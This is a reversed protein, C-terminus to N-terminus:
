LDPSRPAAVDTARSPLRVIFAAGGDPNTGVHISGHHAAVIEAVIALGLGSGGTSRGRDQQLRVFREFVRQREAAPIGPGDDSVELVADEDDHAVRIHVISTAHRAANDILNRVMRSLQNADGRIQVPELVCSLETDTEARKRHVESGVVDDLDVDTVRIPLGREDARALLLLDDILHHMRYTEPLLTQEILEGDLMHPQARGLELAATLAALPSRLEHSADGVFQRQANHGAEIRELMENMTHALAAIEDRQTPVPVRESLDASSIAAVRTRIKEVSQLSRGILTYSAVAAIAVIFPAVLAVLVGVLQITNEIDEQSAAVLVTYQGGVGTTTVATVRLGDLPAAGQVGRATEGLPPRLATLPEPPAHASSQVVRGDTDVIQVMTVRSDTTLVTNDLETPADLQLQGTIDHIRAAAAADSASLLSRYLVFTLALAAIGVAAAVVVGAIIASRIRLGWWSPHPRPWHRTMPEMM